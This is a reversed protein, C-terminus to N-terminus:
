LALIREANELKTMGKFRADGEQLYLIATNRGMKHPNQIQELKAEATKM